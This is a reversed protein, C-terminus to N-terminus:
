ENGVYWRSHFNQCQEHTSLPFGISLGEFDSDGFQLHSPVELSCESPVASYSSFTEPDINRNPFIRKFQEFNM